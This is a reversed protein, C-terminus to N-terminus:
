QKEFFLGPVTTKVVTGVDAQPERQPSSPPSKGCLRWPDRLTDSKNRQARPTEATVRGLPRPPPPPVNAGQGILTYSLHGGFSTEVRLWRTFPGPTTPRFAVKVRKCEKSGFWSCLSFSSPEAFSFPPSNDEQQTQPNLLRAQVQM